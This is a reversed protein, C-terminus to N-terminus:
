IIRIKLSIELLGINPNPTNNQPATIKLIGYHIAYNIRLGATSLPV